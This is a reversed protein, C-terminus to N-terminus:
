AAAILAQSSAEPSHRLLVFFNEDSEEDNSLVEANEEGLSMTSVSTQPPPPPNTYSLGEQDAVYERQPKERRYVLTRAGPSYQGIGIKGDDTIHIRGINLDEQCVRYDHPNTREFRM